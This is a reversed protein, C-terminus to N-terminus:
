LQLEGNHTPRMSKRFDYEVLWNIKGRSDRVAVSTTVRVRLNEISKQGRSEAWKDIQKLIHELVDKNPVVFNLFRTCKSMKNCKANFDSQTHHGREYEIYETYKVGAKKCILDPIFSYKGNDIKIPNGRNFSSVETYIENELLVRQLELIGYGHEPNDHEAIVREVESVVPNDNFHVIFLRKGIDDLWSFFKNPALPTKVSVQNLVNMKVLSSMANRLRSPKIDPDKERIKAEIDNYTPLGERGIVEIIDWMTDTMRDTWDSLDVVHSMIAKKAQENRKKQKSKSHITPIANASLAIAGAAEILEEIAKDEGDVTIAGTNDDEVILEISGNEAAARAAYPANSTAIRNIETGISKVQEPDSINGNVMIASIQDKLGEIEQRRSEALDLTENLLNARELNRSDYSQKAKVLLEDIPVKSWSYPKGLVMESRDKALISVCLIRALDETHKFQKERTETQKSKEDLQEQLDNAKAQVFLFSQQLTNYSKSNM